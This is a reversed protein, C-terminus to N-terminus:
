PSVCPWKSGQQAPQIRQIQPDLPALHLVQGPAVGPQIGADQPIDEPARTAGDCVREDQVRANRQRRALHRATGLFPDSHCLHPQVMDM